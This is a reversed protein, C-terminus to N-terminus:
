SESLGSSARAKQELAEPKRVFMGLLVWGYFSQVLAIVLYGLPTVTPPFGGWRILVWMGALTCGTAGLAGYGGALLWVRGSGRGAAGVVGAVVFLLGVAWMLTLWVHATGEIVGVNISGSSEGGGMSGSMMASMIAVFELHLIHKFVRYAAYCWM